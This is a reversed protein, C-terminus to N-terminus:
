NNIVPPKLPILISAHFGNEEAHFDALGGYKEAITMISSLGLGPGPHKSSLYVENKQHLTGSFTNSTVIGLRGDADEGRLFLRRTGSTQMALAEVSNELLNSLLICLEDDPFALEPSITLRVDYEARLDHAISAYYGLIADATPHESWVKIEHETAHSEYEALYHELREWQKQSALGHLTRMHHRLDHTAECAHQVQASLQKYHEKQMTLRQEMQHLSTQYTLRFRYAEVADLWHAAALSVVLFIGGIEGFWGGYIPEYLPLLRDWVLCAAFSVSGCLLLASHNKRYRMAWISLVTLALATYYKLVLSFWSFLHVASEPLASVCGFRLVTLAFGLICPGTLLLKPHLELGYITGQLLLALLLLAYYCAPELTYWPQISTAFLGHYLPYGTVVALCLGMLGTLVNQSPIERLGFSLSLCTGLLALLVLSGHVMLRVDRVARVSQSFGFLPPYVLGLNMGSYDSCAILLEMNGSGTFTVIQNSLSERYHEPEPNGFQVLLRDNLYVACASFIEPLELAYERPMDSLILSLRYTVSGQRGLYRGDIDTFCRYGSYSTVTEPTLLVDPYLQWQRILFTTEATEPFLLVGNIPQVDQKTYKNDYHYLGLCLASVLALTLVIVLLDKLKIM